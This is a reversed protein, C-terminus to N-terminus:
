SASRLAEKLSAATQFHIEPRDVLARDIVDALKESISPARQRIPVPSSTGIVLSWRQGPPFDRQYQGKLLYYLTAAMAWVDVEPEAYKYNIAQQWPMFRPTGCADGTATLGTYGAQEFAKSLGFDCLAIHGNADLLINEPKLDRYVIDHEHLHKMVIWQDVTVNFGLEKFRQQAYQKVRRATRDLLFSYSNYLDENM